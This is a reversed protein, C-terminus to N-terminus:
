WLDEKIVKNGPPAPGSSPAVRCDTRQPSSRGLCSSAPSQGCTPTEDPSINCHQDHGWDLQYNPIDHENLFEVSMIQHKTENWFEEEGTGWLSESCSVPPRPPCWPPPCWLPPGPPPWPPPVPPSIHQHKMMGVLELQERQVKVNLITMSTYILYMNTM